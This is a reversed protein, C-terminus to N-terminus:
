VSKLRKRPIALRALREDDRMIRHLFYEPDDLIRTVPFERPTKSGTAILWIERYEFGDPDRKPLEAILDIDQHEKSWEIAQYGMQLLLEKYLNDIDTRDLQDFDVFFPTSLRAGPIQRVRTPLKSTDRLARTLYKSLEELGAGDDRYYYIPFTRLDAPLELPEEKAPVLLFVRKGMTQAVGIEFMATPNRMRLDAVVVDSRAIESLAAERTRLDLGPLEIPSPRLGARRVSRRLLGNLHRDSPDSLILYCRLGSRSDESM